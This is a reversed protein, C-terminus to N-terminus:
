PQEYWDRRTLPLCSRGQRDPKSLLAQYVALQAREFGHASGALYLRWARFTPEDV